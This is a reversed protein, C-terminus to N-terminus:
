GSRVAAVVSAAVGIATLIAIVVTLLAVQRTLRVITESARDTRRRSLEDLYWQKGVVVQERGSDFIEVLQHDTYGKLEEYSEM